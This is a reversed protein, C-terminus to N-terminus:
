GKLIKEFEVLVDDVTIAKMCIPDDCKKANCPICDLSKQIVHGRYPGTRSPNSPGFLAVVEKGLSVAFHMPGTDCSLVARSSFLVEKLENISTKGALNIISGKSLEVIKESMPGDEPGGTLVSEYGWNEKLADALIAFRDAFWRNAPKTAGINLVIYKEPLHAHREGIVPIEWSVELEPVGLYTGFELYQDLMHAKPDSSPIRDFPFLWTMEKCRRKDFGIRRKANATMSFLGSKIIRQLDLVIDFEQEKLKRRVHPLSTKWKKKDFLIVNDVFPHESVIPYSLPAVLWHIRANFHKKLNVALPLTNLVDGLAGLKIFLIDM